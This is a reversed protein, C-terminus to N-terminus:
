SAPPLGKTGVYWGVSTLVILVLLTFDAGGAFPVLWSPGRTHLGAVKVVFAGYFLCGAASHLLVRLDGTYFGIGYLCAFAVPLSVLLALLGIVRHITGIRAPAPRRIRGYMWLASVLQLLALVCVVLGLWVKMRIISGFGLTPVGAVDPDHSLGFAGLAVALLGGAVAAVVLAREPARNTEQM